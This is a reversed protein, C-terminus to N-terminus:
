HRAYKSLVMKVMEPADDKWKKINDLNYVYTTVYHKHCLENIKVSFLCLGTTCRYLHLAGKEYYFFWEDMNDPINGCKLKIYQEDSLQLEIPFSISVDSVPLRKWDNKTVIPFDLPKLCLGIQQLKKEAENISRYSLFENKLIHILEM